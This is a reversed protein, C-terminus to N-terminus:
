QRVFFRKVPPTPEYLPTDEPPGAVAKTELPKRNAFLPDAPLGPSKCGALALLIFFCGIQGLRLSMSGKM